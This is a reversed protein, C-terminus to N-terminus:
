FWDYGLVGEDTRLYLFGPGVAIQLLEGGFPPLEWSSQQRSRLNWGYLKKEKALFVTEESVAMPVPTPFGLAFLYNGSVDLVAVQGATDQALLFNDREVLYAPNFEAGVAVRLDPGQRQFGGGPGLSKLKGDTPDAVWLTNRNSLCVAQVQALGYDYLPARSSLNLTRDLTLAQQFDASFVLLQLPDTADLWSVPGLNNDSFRAQVKGDAGFRLIQNRATALFLRGAKDAAMASCAGPIEFRLRPVTDVQAAIGSFSLVLLPLLLIKHILAPNIRKPRVWRRLV